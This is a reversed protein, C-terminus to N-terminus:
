PAHHLVCGLRGHLLPIDQVIPDTSQSSADVRSLGELLHRGHIDAQQDQTEDDSGQEDPVSRLLEESPPVAATRGPRSPEEVLHPETKKKLCFVAYSNSPHSSNLRTSKRDGSAPERPSHRPM